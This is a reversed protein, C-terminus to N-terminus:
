KELAGLGPTQGSFTQPAVGLTGGMFKVFVTGANICPSGIAPRSSVDLQPDDQIVKGHSIRCNLFQRGNEWFLNHSIFSRGDVNKM